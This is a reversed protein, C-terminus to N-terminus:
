NNKRDKLDLDKKEIADKVVSIEELISKFEVASREISSQDHETFAIYTENGLRSILKQAQNELQKIDWMLMGRESLDQAKAGAKAALEKSATWGQELMDRMRESFAM